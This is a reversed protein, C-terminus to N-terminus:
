GVQRLRPLQRRRSTDPPLTSLNRFNNVLWPVASVCLAGEKAKKKAMSGGTAPSVFFGFTGPRM